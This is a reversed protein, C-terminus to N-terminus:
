LSNSVRDLSAPFAVTDKEITVTGETVPRVTYPGTTPSILKRSGKRVKEKLSRSHGTLLYM